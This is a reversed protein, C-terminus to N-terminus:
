RVDLNSKLKEYAGAFLDCDYEPCEDETATM